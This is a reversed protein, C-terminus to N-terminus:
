SKSMIWYKQGTDSDGPFSCDKRQPLSAAIVSPENLVIGEGRADHMVNAFEGHHGALRLEKILHIAQHDLVTHGQILGLNPHKPAAMLIRATGGDGSIGIRGHLHLPIYLPRSIVYDGRPFVLQGECRQVAHSLAATDDTKGDGRAGFDRVTPM